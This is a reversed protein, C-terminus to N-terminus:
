AATSAAAPSSSPIPTRTSRCRAPLMPKWRRHLWLWQDPHARVFAGLAETAGRTAELVCARTPRAPPRLVELVYLVHDGAATRRAAAVV